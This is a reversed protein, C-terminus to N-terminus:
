GYKLGLKRRSPKVAGDNAPPCPDGTQDARGANEPVTRPRGAARSDMTM